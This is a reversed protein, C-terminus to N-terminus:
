REYNQGLSYFLAELLENSLFWKSTLTYRKEFVMYALLIIIPEKALSLQSKNILFIIDTEHEFCVKEIDGIKINKISFERFFLANLQNDSNEVINKVINKNSNDIFSRNFQAYMKAVDTFFNREYTDIKHMSKYIQCITDDAVKIKEYADRLATESSYAAFIIRRLICVLM